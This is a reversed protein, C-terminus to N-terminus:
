AASDIPRLMVLLFPIGTLIVSLVFGRMYDDYTGHPAAHSDGHGDGHGADHAGHANESHGASM